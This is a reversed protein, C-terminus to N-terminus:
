RKVNDATISGLILNDPTSYKKVAILAHKFTFRAIVLLLILNAKVVSYVAYSVFYEVCHVVEVVVEVVKVVMLPLRPFFTQLVIDLMLLCLMLTEDCSKLYKSM